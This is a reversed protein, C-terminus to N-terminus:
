TLAYRSVALSEQKLMLNRSMPITHCVNNSRAGIFLNLSAEEADRLISCSQGVDVVCAYQARENPQESWSQKPKAAVM